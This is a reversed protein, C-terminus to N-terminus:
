GDSRPEAASAPRRTARRIAPDNREVPVLLNGTGRRRRDSLM